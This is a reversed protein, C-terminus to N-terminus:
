RRAPEGCRSGGDRRSATVLIRGSAAAYNGYLMKMISSKGAGSPRGLM